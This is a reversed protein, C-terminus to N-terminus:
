KKIYKWFNQIGRSYPGYDLCNSLVIIQIEPTM